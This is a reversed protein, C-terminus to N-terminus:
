VIRIEKLVNADYKHNEKNHQNYLRNHTSAANPIHHTSHTDQNSKKIFVTKISRTSSLTM